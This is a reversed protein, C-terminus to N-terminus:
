YSGIGFAARFESVEFQDTIKAIKGNRVKYTTSGRIAFGSGDAPVTIGRLLFPTGTRTGSWVVECVVTDGDVLQSNIFTAKDDPIIKSWDKMYDVVAEIGEHREVGGNEADPLEFIVSPDLLDAFANWDKRNYAEALRKAVLRASDNVEQEEKEVFLLWKNVTRKPDAATM